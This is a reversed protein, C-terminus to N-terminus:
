GSKSDAAPAAEGEDPEDPGGGVKNAVRNFRAHNVAAPWDAVGLGEMIEGRKRKAEDTLAGTHPDRDDHSRDLLDKKAAM